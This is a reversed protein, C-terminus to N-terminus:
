FKSILSNDKPFTMSIVKTDEQPELFNMLSNHDLSKMESAKKLLSKRRASKQSPTLDALDIQRQIESFVVEYSCHNWGINILAMFLIDPYTTGKTGIPCISIKDQLYQLLIERDHEIETTLYDLLCDSQSRNFHLEVKVIDKAAEWPFRGTISRDVKGKLNPAVEYIKCKLKSNGFMLLHPTKKLLEMGEVGGILRKLQKFRLKSKQLIAYERNKIKAKFLDVELIESLDQFTVQVDSTSFAVLNHGNRLYPLSSKINLRDNGYYIDINDGYYRRGNFSGKSLSLKYRNKITPHPKLYSTNVQNVESLEVHFYDSQLM